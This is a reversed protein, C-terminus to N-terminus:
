EGALTKLMTLTAAAFRDGNCRRFATIGYCVKTATNEQLAKLVTVDTAETSISM